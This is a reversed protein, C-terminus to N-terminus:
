TYLDAGTHQYQRALRRWSSDPVIMTYFAPENWWNFHRNCLAPRSIIALDQDIGHAWCRVFCIRKNSVDPMSRKAPSSRM